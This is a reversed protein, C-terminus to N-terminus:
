HGLNSTQGHDKFKSERPSSGPLTNGLDALKERTIESVANTLDRGAKWTEIDEFPEIKM